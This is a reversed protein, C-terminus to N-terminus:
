KEKRKKHFYVFYLIVIIILFHVGIFVFAENKTLVRGVRATMHSAWWWEEPINVFEPDTHPNVLIYALDEIGSIMFLIFVIGIVLIERTKGGGLRYAFALSLIIFPVYMQTTLYFKDWDKTWYAFFQTPVFFCFMCAFSLLILLIQWRPKFWEKPFYGIFLVAFLYPLIKVIMVWVSTVETKHEGWNLVLLTLLMAAILSGISIHWEKINKKIFDKM